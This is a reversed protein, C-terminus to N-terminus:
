ICEVVDEFSKLCFNLETTNSTCTVFKMYPTNKQELINNYEEITLEGLIYMLKVIEHVKFAAEKSFSHAYKKIFKTIEYNPKDACTIAVYVIDLCIESKNMCVGKVRIFFSFGDSYVLNYVNSELPEYPLNLFPLGGTKGSVIYSLFDYVFHSKYITKKHYINKFDYEEVKVINDLYINRTLGDLPKVIFDCLTKRIYVWTKLIYFLINMQCSLEPM